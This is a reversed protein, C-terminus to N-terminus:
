RRETSRVHHSTPKASCIAVFGFGGLAVLVCGAGNNDVLLAYLGFGVLFLSAILAIIRM